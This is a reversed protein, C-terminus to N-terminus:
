GAGTAYLMNTEICTEASANIIRRVTLFECEGDDNKRPCIRCNQLCHQMGSIYRNVTMDTSPVVNPSM